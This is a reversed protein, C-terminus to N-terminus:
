AHANIWEQLPEKGKLHVHGDSMDMRLFGDADSYHKYIDLFTYPFERIRDNLRTVFGLREQDSGRFPYGPNEPSLGTLGDRRPPPVVNYVWVKKSDRGKVNEEIALKYNEALKDICEDFPPHKYVHCRCDIEGYCFVVIDDVPIDKTMIPKYFGFHYLTMPGALFPVSRSIDLWVHWAHSDGIPHIIKQDGM